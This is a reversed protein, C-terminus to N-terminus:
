RRRRLLALAGIALTSLTAPEPVPNAFNASGTDVYIDDIFVPGVFGGGGVGMNYTILDNAQLASGSNRFTFTGAGDTSKLLQTISSLAPDNNSQMYIKYTDTSNDIALWVNYTADALPIIRAADRELQTPGAATTLLPFSNASRGRFFTGSGYDENLQVESDGALNTPAPLDSLITNFNLNGAGKKFTFFVTAASSANPIALGAAQLSRYNRHAANDTYNDFRVANNGPAVNVITISGQAATDPTTWTNGVPGQGNLISGATYSNFNDFVVFGAHAPAAAFVITAALLLGPTWHSLKRQM